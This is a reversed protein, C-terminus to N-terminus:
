ARQPETFTSGIGIATAVAIGACVLYPTADGVGAALAGAAVPGVMAGTAWASNMVGFGLTQPLGTAEARDSVLAIGPSTVGSVAVSACFILAAVVLARDSLALMIGIAAMGWLGLRVPVLRGRVDSLRGAVPALAVEILGACVFAGAIAVSGWGADDFTLPALLDLAGFFLAPVVTLWVAVAFPADRLAQRLSISGTRPTSRTAPLRAAVGALVITAAAVGLFVVRVSTLEAVAGIAPGVIFGLVAFGFATGLTQGRRERPTSTTLWALAGSWTVASAFGQAFRAIGLAVSGSALAFGASAVGLLLLGVVATRKAGVREALYGSPIGGLVAGAGYAGVVLGAQVESLGLEGTLTPVLPVIAAFLMTDTFVIACVLPLLRTRM